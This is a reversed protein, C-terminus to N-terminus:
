LTTQLCLHRLRTKIGPSVPTVHPSKGDHLRSVLCRDSRRSGNTRRGDSGTKERGAVGTLRDNRERQKNQPFRQWSRSHTINLRGHITRSARKLTGRGAYGEEEGGVRTLATPGKCEEGTQRRRPVRSTWAKTTIRRRGEERSDM